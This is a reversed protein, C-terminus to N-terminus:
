TYWRVVLSRAALILVDELAYRETATELPGDFRLLEEVASEILSPNHRLKEIQHPNRLLALASNGISIASVYPFVM